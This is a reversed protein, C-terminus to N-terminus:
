LNNQNEIGDELLQQLRKCEFDEAIVRYLSKLEFESRRFKDMVRPLVKLDNTINFLVDAIM